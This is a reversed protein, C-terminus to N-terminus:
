PSGASPFLSVPHTSTFLNIRKNARTTSITISAPDDGDATDSVDSASLVLGSLSIAVLWVSALLEEALAVIVIVQVVADGDSSYGL